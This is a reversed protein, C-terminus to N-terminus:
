GQPSHVADTSLCEGEVGGSEGAHPGGAAAEELWQQVERIAQKELALMREELQEQTLSPPISPSPLFCQQWTVGLESREKVDMRCHIPHLGVRVCAAAVKAPLVAGRWLRGRYEVYGKAATELGRGTYIHRCALQRTGPGDATLNFSM